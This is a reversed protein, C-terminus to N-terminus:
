ATRAKRRRIGYGILGVAGLGALVMSSPEPTSAAFVTGQFSSKYGGTPAGATTGLQTLTKAPVFSFTLTVIGGNYQSNGLLTLLDKQAGLYSVSSLNITGSANVTGGTGQTQITIGQVNGTFDHGSGDNIDLVGTGSVNATQTNGSTTVGSYSYTGSLTGLDNVSDGVGSSNTISFSYGGPTAPVFSFNASPNSSTGTPTFVVNSNSTNALNLSIDARAGPSLALGLVAAVGLSLLRMKM